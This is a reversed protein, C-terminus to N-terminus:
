RRNKEEAYKRPILGMMQGNLVYAEGFPNVVISEAEQDTIAVKFLDFIPMEITIHSVSGKLYEETDTYLPIMVRGRESRVKEIVLHADEEIQFTSGITLKEPDISGFANTKDIVPVDVTGGELMRDVFIRILMDRNENSDDKLLEHVADKILRNKQERDKKIYVDDRGIERDFRNMVELMDETVRARCTAFLLTPIGYMAEAMAGAIAGLTDTDGGLSVANRVVDEFSDGEFFSVLAKPMSDQCSEIHEHRARLQELSESLDYGFERIVYERIENKPVGTRALYIVASTCEAGKIGEPHNHTVAAVAVAVERTRELSDYLWGVASTRMASGNGYSNYPGAGKTFLWRYFRGGFGADPYKRGWKRLSHRVHGSIKSIDAKPGEKLLADAVAVTLVTDDTWCSEDTFLEFEKTKGGRDFEFRSGIIDGLIAGYM